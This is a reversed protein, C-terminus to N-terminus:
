ILDKTLKLAFYNQNIVIYLLPIITFKIVSKVKVGFLAYYVIIIYFYNYLPSSLELQTKEWYFGKSHIETRLM